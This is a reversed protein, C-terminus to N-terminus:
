MALLALFALFALFEPYPNSADEAFVPWIHGLLVAAM